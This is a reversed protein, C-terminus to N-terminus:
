MRCNCIVESPNHVNKSARARVKAVCVFPIEAFETKLSFAPPQEGIRQLICWARSIALAHHSVLLPKIDPTACMPSVVWCIHMPKVQAALLPLINHGTSVEWTTAVTVLCHHLVIQHVNDSARSYVAVTINEGKVKAGANPPLQNASPSVQRIPSVRMTGHQPFTEDIEIAPIVANAVIVQLLQIQLRPHPATNNHMSLAGRATVEM